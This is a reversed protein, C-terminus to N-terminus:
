FLMPAWVAKILLAMSPVIARGFSGDTLQVDVEITPHGRSDLVELGLIHSIIKEPM